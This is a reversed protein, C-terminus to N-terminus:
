LWNRRSYDCYKNFSEQIYQPECFAREVSRGTTPSIVLGWWGKSNTIEALRLMCSWAYRIEALASSSIRFETLIVKKWNSAKKIIERKQTSHYKCVISCVYSTTWYNQYIHTFIQTANKLSNKLIRNQQLDYKGKVSTKPEKPIALVIVAITLGVVIVSLVGIIAFLPRKNESVISCFM